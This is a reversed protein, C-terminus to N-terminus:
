PPRRLCTSSALYLRRADVEALNDRARKLEALVVEITNVITLLQKSM